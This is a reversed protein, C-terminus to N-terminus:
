QWILVTGARGINYCGDMVAAMKGFIPPLAASM